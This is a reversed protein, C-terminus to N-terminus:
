DEKKEPQLKPVLAGAAAVFDLDEDSLETGYRAEAEALMRDLKSNHEFKQFEFLSALKKEM